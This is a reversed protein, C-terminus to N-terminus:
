AAAPRTAASAPSPTPSWSSWTPRSNFGIPNGNYSHVQVLVNDVLLEHDDGVTDASLTLTEFTDQDM